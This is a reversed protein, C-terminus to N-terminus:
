RAVRLFDDLARSGLLGPLLGPGLRGYVASGPVAGLYLAFVGRELYPRLLLTLATALAVAGVAVALGSLRKATPMPRCYLLM